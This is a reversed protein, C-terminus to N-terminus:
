PVVLQDQKKQVSKAGRLHYEQDPTQAKLSSHPHRTSRWRPGSRTPGHSPWAACCMYIIMPGPASYSYNPRRYLADIGMRGM